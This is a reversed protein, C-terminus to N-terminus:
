YSYGFQECYEKAIQGITDRAEPYNDFFERYTIQPRCKDKLRPLQKPPLGLRKLFENFDAQLNEYRLYLDLGKTYTIPNYFLREIPEDPGFSKNHLAWFYYSVAISWPNRVITLKLYEDWIPGIRKRIREPCMHNTFGKSNQVLPEVMDTDTAKNTFIGTVIDDPGCFEHIAAEFSTGAVKIGKVFIFRHRHSVIM